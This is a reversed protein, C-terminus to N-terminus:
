GVPLFPYNSLKDELWRAQNLVQKKEHKLKKNKLESTYDGVTRRIVDGDLFQKAMDAYPTSSLPLDHQFRNLLQQILKLKYEHQDISGISM